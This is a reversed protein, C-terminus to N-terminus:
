ELLGKIKQGAAAEEANEECRPCLSFHKDMLRVKWTNIPLVRFLFKYLKCMMSM